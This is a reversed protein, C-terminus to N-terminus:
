LKVIGAPDLPWSEMPECRGYAWEKLGEDTGCPSCVYVATDELGRTRRSLANRVQVPHLNDLGCRPCETYTVDPDKTWTIM